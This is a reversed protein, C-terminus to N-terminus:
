PLRQRESRRRQHPLQFGSEQSTDLFHRNRKKARNAVILRATPTGLDTFVTDFSVTDRSFTLIDNPSTSVADSICSTATLGIWWIMTM